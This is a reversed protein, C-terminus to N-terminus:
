VAHRTFCDVCYEVVYTGPFIPWRDSLDRNQFDFGRQRDSRLQSIVGCGPPVTCVTNKAAM